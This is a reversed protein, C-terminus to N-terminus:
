DLGGYREPVFFSKGSLLSEELAVARGVTEMQFSEAIDFPPLWLREYTFSLPDVPKGERYVGFHLHSGTSRGTNGVAGIIDGMRVSSGRAVYVAQLHAYLTKIGNEHRIIVTTGYGRRRGTEIVIGDRAAHVLIGREAKVDIGEHMRTGENFPDERVGFRSTIRGANIPARFFGPPSMFYDNSTVYFECSRCGAPKLLTFQGYRSSKVSFGTLDTLNVLIKQDFIGRIMFSVTDGPSLHHLIGWDWQMAPRITEYFEPFDRSFEDRVTFTKIMTQELLVLPRRSLRWGKETQRLATEIGTTRSTYHHLSIRRLLDGEKTVALIDGPAFLAIGADTRFLREVERWTTEGFVEALFPDYGGGPVMVVTVDLPHPAAAASDWRITLPFRRYELNLAPYLLFVGFVVVAAFLAVPAIREM